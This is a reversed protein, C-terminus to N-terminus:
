YVGAPLVDSRGIAHEWPGLLRDGRGRTLQVPPLGTLWACLGGVQHISPLGPGPWSGPGDLGSEAGGM